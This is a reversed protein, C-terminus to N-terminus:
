PPLFLAQLELFLARLGLLISKLPYRRSTMFVVTLPIKTNYIGMPVWLIDTRIKFKNSNVASLTRRGEFPSNGRLARGIGLFRIPHGINAQM